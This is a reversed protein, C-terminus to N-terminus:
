AGQLKAPTAEWRLLRAMRHDPEKDWNWEDDNIGEALKRLREMGPLGMSIKDVREQVSQRAPITDEANLVGSMVAKVVEDSLGEMQFKPVGVYLKRGKVLDSHPLWVGYPEDNAMFFLKFGKCPQDKPKSPLFQQLIEDTLEIGLEFEYNETRPNSWQAPGDM